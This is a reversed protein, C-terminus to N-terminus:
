LVSISTVCADNVVAQLASKCPMQFFFDLMSINASVLHFVFLFSLSVYYGALIKGVYLRGLIIVSFFLFHTVFLPDRV